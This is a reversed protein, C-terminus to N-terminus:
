ATRHPGHQHDLMSDRYAADMEDLYDDTVQAEREAFPDRMNHYVHRPMLSALNASVLLLMMLASVAFRPIAGNIRLKPLFAALEELPEIDAMRARLAEFSYAPGSCVLFEGMLGSFDCLDALEGACEACGAVHQEVERRQPAYLDGDLYAVMQSRIYRCQM